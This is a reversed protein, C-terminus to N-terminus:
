KIIVTLQFTKDTKTGAEWPRRYTMAITTRGAKRASFTWIEKGGAGALPQTQGPIQTAQYKSQVMELISPDAISTLEWRFGTTVNSELTVVLTGNVALEVEKGSYSADVSVQQPTAQPSTMPGSSTQASTPSSGCGAALLPVLGLVVVNLLAGTGVM